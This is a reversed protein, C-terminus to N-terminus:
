PLYVIFSAVDMTFLIYKRHLFSIYANAASQNLLLSYMNILTFIVTVIYMYSIYNSCCDLITSFTFFPPYIFLRLFALFLIIM